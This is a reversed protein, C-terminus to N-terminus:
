LIVRTGAIATSQAWLRLFGKRYKGQWVKEEVDKM